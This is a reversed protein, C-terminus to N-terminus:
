KIRMFSLDNDQFLNFLAMALSDIAMEEDKDDRFKGCLGTQWLIAHLIEHLLTTRSKQETSEPDIFIRQTKFHLSGFNSGESTVQGDRIISYEFGLIRISNPLNM